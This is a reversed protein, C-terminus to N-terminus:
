QIVSDNALIIFHRHCSFSYIRLMPPIVSVPSVSNCASFETGLAFKDVVFVVHVPRPNFGSWDMDLSRRIVAQAMAHGQTYPNAVKHYLTLKM